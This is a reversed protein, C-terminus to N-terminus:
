LNQLPDLVLQMVTIVRTMFIVQLIEDVHQFRRQEVLDKIDLISERLKFLYISPM